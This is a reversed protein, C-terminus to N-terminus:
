KKYVNYFDEQNQIFSGLGSNKKVLNIFNQQARDNKNQFDFTWNPNKIELATFVGYVHGCPCKTPTIGILDSSKFLNNIRTSDNGLGFRIPTGTTPNPLVGSNNRMLFSKFKSLSHIRIWALLQKETM